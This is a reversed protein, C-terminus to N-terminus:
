VVSECSLFVRAFEGPSNVRTDTNKGGKKGTLLAKEVPHDEYHGINVELLM